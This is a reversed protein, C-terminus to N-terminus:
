LSSLWTTVALKTYHSLVYKLTEIFAFGRIILVLFLSYSFSSFLDGFIKGLLWVLSRWFEYESKYSEPSRIM